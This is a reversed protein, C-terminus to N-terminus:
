ACIGRLLARLPFLPLGCTLMRQPRRVTTSPFRIHPRPYPRTFYQPLKGLQTCPLGSGSLAQEALWHLKHQPSDTSETISMQTVTMQSMNVFAQSLLAPCQLPTM